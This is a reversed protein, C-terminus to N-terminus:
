HVKKLFITCNDDKLLHFYNYNLVVTHLLKSLM